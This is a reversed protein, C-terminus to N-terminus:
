NKSNFVYKDIYDNRFKGSPDHQRMLRRLAILDYGYLKEFRKGSMRFVKGMHPKASFRELKKEVLKIAAMVQKPKKHWTFHIAVVDQGQAPSMPIDDACVQRLESVFLLPTVVDSIKHIEELAERIHVQPVFFETQIEDGNSSPPMHPLFHCIKDIWKGHGVTCVAAPDQNKCPHIREEEIHKAGFLEPIKDRVCRFMGCKHGVWVQDMQRKSYDLFFSLFESYQMMEEFNEDKFITDWKMDTYIQKNVEYTPEIRMTMKTVVGLGGFSMLYRNFDPTNDRNLHLVEGTGTIMKM